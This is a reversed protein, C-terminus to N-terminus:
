SSGLRQKAGSTLKSRQPRVTLKHALLLLAQALGDAHLSEWCRMGVMRCLM